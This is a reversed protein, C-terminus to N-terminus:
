LGAQGIIKSSRHQDSSQQTAYTISPLPASSAARRSRRPAAAPPTATEGPLPQESQPASGSRGASFSAPVAARIGTRLSLLKGCAHLASVAASNLLRRKMQNLERSIEIDAHLTSPAERETKASRSLSAISLAEKHSFLQAARSHNRGQTVSADAILEEFHRRRM